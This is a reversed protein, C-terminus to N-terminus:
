KECQKTSQKRGCLNGSSIGPWSSATMLPQSKQKNDGTMMLNITTKIKQQKKREGSATGCKGGSPSESSVMTSPQSNNTKNQRNLNIRRNEEVQMAGTSKEINM